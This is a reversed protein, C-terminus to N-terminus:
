HRQTFVSLWEDKSIDLRKLIKKILFSPIQQDKKHRGLTFIKTGNRWIKMESGKGNEVQCDFAKKMFNFFYSMTVSPVPDNITTPIVFSETATCSASEDLIKHYRYTFDALDDEYNDASKISETQRISYLALLKNHFENLVFDGLIDLEEINCDQKAMCWFNHTVSWLFRYTSTTLIDANDEPKGISFSPFGFEMFLFIALKDNIVVKNKNPDWSRIYLPILEYIDFIMNARYDIQTIHLLDSKTAEIEQLVSIICPEAIIYDRVNYLEIQNDLFKVENPSQCFGKFNINVPNYFDNNTPLSIHEYIFESLFSQVLLDIAHEFFFQLRRGEYWTFEDLPKLINQYLFLQAKVATLRRKKYALDKGIASFKVRLKQQLESIEPQNFWDFGDEPYRGGAIFLNHTEIAEEYLAVILSYNKKLAERFGIPFFVQKDFNLVTYSENDSLFRQKLGPITNERSNISDVRAADQQKFVKRKLSKSFTPSGQEM